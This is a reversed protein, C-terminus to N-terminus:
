HESSGDPEQMKSGEIVETLWVPAEGADEPERPTSVATEAAEEIVEAGLAEMLEQPAPGGDAAEATELPLPEDGRTVTVAEPTETEIIIRM